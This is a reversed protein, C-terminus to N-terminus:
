KVLAEKFFHSIAAVVKTQDEKTLEPYMPLSLAEKCAREAEPFDGEKYGLSAFVPQLHMPVPYYVMTAIGKESLANQLADRSTTRITYQHFISVHQEGIYPTEVPVSVEQFLENYITAVQRRSESWEELFTAKVNLIAAQLEDLRSNIGLMQHYYKPKSGHVRLIRMTEALEDHKTVIMGGDGYAGLNKSPFFSYCAADSLQGTREGAFSAGISQAADEILWLKHADALDRLRGMDATQGYLHVPLIAKTKATIAKAVADPDINFSVPDIDAFVPTAGTRAIAGATAFFTFPTTIVEDGEKLGCAALAIYLADSGSGVGIGHSVNSLSALRAELERVEEGLIFHGREICQVIRANMEEKLSAYQATLDLMPIKM